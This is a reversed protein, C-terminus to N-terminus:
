KPKNGPTVNPHSRSYSVSLRRAATALTDAGEMGYRHARDFAEAASALRGDLLYAQGLGFWGMPGRPAVLTAALSQVAAKDYMGL